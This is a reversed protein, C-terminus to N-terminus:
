QGQWPELNSEGIVLPPRELARGIGDALSALPGPAAVRGHCVLDREGARGEEVFGLHQALQANNGFEAHVDRAFRPDGEDGGPMVGGLAVAHLRDARVEGGRVAELM